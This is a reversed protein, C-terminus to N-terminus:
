FTYWVNRASHQPSYSFYFFITLCTLIHCFHKLCVKHLTQSSNTSRTYNNLVITSLTLTYSANFNKTWVEKVSWCAKCKWWLTLKTVAFSFIKHNTMTWIYIELNKRIFLPILLIFNTGNGVSFHRSKWTIINEKSYSKMIMGTRTNSIKLIAGYNPAL